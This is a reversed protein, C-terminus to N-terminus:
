EKKGKQFHECVLAVLAFLLMTNTVRLYSLASLGLFSKNPLFLRAIVALIVTIVAIIGAISYVIRM